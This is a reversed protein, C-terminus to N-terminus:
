LNYYSRVVQAVDGDDGHYGNADAAVLISFYVGANNTKNYNM